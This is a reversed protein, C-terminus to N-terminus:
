PTEWQSDMIDTGDTFDGCDDSMQALVDGYRTKTNEFAEKLRRIDEPSLMTPPNNEFKDVIEQRSTAFRDKEAKWEQITGFKFRHYTKM